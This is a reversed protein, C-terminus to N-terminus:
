KTGDMEVESEILGYAYAAQEFPDDYVTKVSPMTFRTPFPEPQKGDLERVRGLARARSM